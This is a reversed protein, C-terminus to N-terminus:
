HEDAIAQLLTYAEEKTEAVQTHYPEMYSSAAFEASARKVKNDVVYVFHRFEVIGNLLVRQTGSAVSYTGAKKLIVDTRGNYHDRIENRLTDLDALTFEDNMYAECYLIGKYPEMIFRGTDVM